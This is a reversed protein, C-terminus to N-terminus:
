KRDKGGSNSEFMIEIKKGKLNPMNEPSSSDQICPTLAFDGRILEGNKVDLLLSNPDGLNRNSTIVTHTGNPITSPDIKLVHTRPTVGCVGYKGDQDTLISTGSEMWLKISSAGKEGTDQIGNANCDFFVKGM